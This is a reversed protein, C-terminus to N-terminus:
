NEGLRNSMFLMLRLTTTNINQKVLEIEEVTMQNLSREVGSRAKVLAATPLVEDGLPPFWVAHIIKAREGARTKIEEVIEQAEKVVEPQDSFKLKVLSIFASQRLPTTMHATLADGKGEYLDALSHILIELFMELWSFSVAVAGIAKLHEEPVYDTVFPNPAEM